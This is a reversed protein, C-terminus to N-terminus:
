DCVVQQAAAESVSQSTWELLPRIVGPLRGNFDGRASDGASGDIVHFAVVDEEFFHISLPALTAVVACVFHTGDALLDAPIWGTARYRGCPRERRHWEPVLEHSVFLCVGEGNHIHFNPVLVVSPKLVEFEIEIGISERVDATDTTHGFSDCVRVGLLRVIDNGPAKKLDSWRRESSAALGSRLYLGIVEESLGDYAVGGGDLLITRPCLKAIAPMSHSVFIVTRGARGVDQMKNICKKQFAADGVALVEDVILIEPELHAAVAFALRMYMGSSYHKVPTDLFKEIEAFAVIEDFKRAIEARHMGLIAGNLYTNERGTLENNFGTGVELLSGVRGRIEAYGETPETIRSLLKLLTSKGAGNRGIVGVVEGRPIEFSVDKVAWIHEDEGKRDARRGHRLLRFPSLLTESISERLTRYYVRRGISYRKGLKEVRIAIDSM